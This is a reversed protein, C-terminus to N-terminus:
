PTDKRLIFVYTPNLWHAVRCLLKALSQRRSGPPCVDTAAYSEPDHIIKATYDTVHFGSLLRRLGWYTLHKEYYEEGRGMFRVYRHALPKPIASLLPLQYHPEMWSLRNGASFFCLGGPKLVRRIEGMMQEADPVHEYVHACVAVDFSEDAVPLHLADSNVFFLGQSGHRAAAYALAEKDIDLGVTMGFHGAMFATMIGTSCGVDVVRLGAMKGNLADALVALIKKAKQRRQDVNYMAGPLFRSYDTQYAKNLSKLSMNPAASKMAAPGDM